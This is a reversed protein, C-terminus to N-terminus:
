VTNKKFLHRYKLILILIRLELNSLKLNKKINGTLKLLKKRTSYTDLRRFM